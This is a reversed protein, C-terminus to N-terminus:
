LTVSLVAGRRSVGLGVLGLAFLALTAPVPVYRYTLTGRLTQTGSGLGECSSGSGRTECRWWDTAVLRPATVTFSSLDQFASNYSRFTGLRSTSVTKVEGPQFTYFTDTSFFEFTPGGAFWYVASFGRATCFPYDAVCVFRDTSIRSPAEFELSVSLLTGLATDFSNLSLNIDTNGVNVQEFSQTIFLANARHTFFVLAAIVFLRSIRIKRLKIM